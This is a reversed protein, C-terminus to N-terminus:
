EALTSLNGKAKILQIEALKFDLLSNTYNNEAETFANEANLLDTLTALGHKYNNQINGLISKALTVNEKQINITILANEISKQANRFDLDLAQKTDAIQLDVKKLEVNVQKVKARTEFGNFLPIKLSVGVVANSTWFVGESPKGGWVFDDGFGQYSMTGFAALSPYYDALTAKKKYYLLDKQKELLHLETRNNVDNEALVISEDITFTNDPFNLDTDLPMGMFFKLANQQLEVANMVQQKKAQLNSLAVTTRDLDIKTALGNSYLGEIIEKIKTTSNITTEFTRLMEKTQFVQYYTTSVKEIIQEDTLEKNIVYFEKATRAAKLGMFVAQNFLVQTLTASAQSNWEKNFPIMQTQGGMTLPMEQILPNNTLNAEVNLHPLANARVEEIQYQSNEIDLSAQKAEAKHELAYQLAQQLTLESSQASTYTIGGILFLLGIYLHKYM